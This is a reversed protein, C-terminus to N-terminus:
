VNRPKVRKMMVDALFRGAIRVIAMGTVTVRKRVHQMKEQIVGQRRIKHYVDTVKVIPLRLM